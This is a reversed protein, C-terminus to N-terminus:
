RKIRLRNCKKCSIRIKMKKCSENERNREINEKKLKEKQERKRKKQDVNEEKEEEKTARLIRKEEIGDGKIAM